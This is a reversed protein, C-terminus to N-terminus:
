VKKEYKELVEEYNKMRNISSDINYNENKLADIQTELKDKEIALKNIKECNKKVIELLEKKLKENYKIIKEMKMNSKM